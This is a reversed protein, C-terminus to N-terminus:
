TRIEGHVPVEVGDKVRVICIYAGEFIDGLEANIAWRMVDGLDEAGHDDGLLKLLAEASKVVNLVIHNDMADCVLFTRENCLLSECGM